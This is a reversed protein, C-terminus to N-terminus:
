NTNAASNSDALRLFTNRKKKKAKLCFRAYRLMTDQSISKFPPSLQAFPLFSFFYHCAWFVLASTSYKWKHKSMNWYINRIKQAVHLSIHPAEFNKSLVIPYMKSGRKITLTQTWIKKGRQKIKKHLYFCLWLLLLLILILLLLPYQKLNWFWPCCQKNQESSIQGYYQFLTSTMTQLCVSNQVRNKTIAFLYYIIYHLDRICCTHTWTLGRKFICIRSVNKLFSLSFAWVARFM